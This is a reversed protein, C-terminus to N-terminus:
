ARPKLPPDGGRRKGWIRQQIRGTGPRQRRSGLEQEEESEAERASGTAYGTTAPTAIPAASSRKPKRKGQWRRHGGGRPHRRMEEGASDPRAWSHNEARGPCVQAAVM